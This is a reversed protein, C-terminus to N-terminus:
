APPPAPSRSLDWHWDHNCSAGDIEALSEKWRGGCDPCQPSCPVPAETTRDKESVVVHLVKVPARHVWSLVGTAIRRGLWLPIPLRNMLAGLRIAIRMRRMGASIDVRAEVTKSTDAYRILHRNM